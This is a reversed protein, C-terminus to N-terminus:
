LQETLGSKSFEVATMVSVNRVQEDVPQVVVHVTNDDFLGPARQPWEVLCISGSWICEEVGASFAEEGDRLRYLDIHFITRPTGTETYGYENIISFTPSGVGDRVGKAKCLATILTTKGAGLAGYFAFVTADGAEKWFWEAFSPLDDLTVM